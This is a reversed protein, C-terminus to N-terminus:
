QILGADRAWWLAITVAFLGAILWGNEGWRARREAHEACRRCHMLPREM